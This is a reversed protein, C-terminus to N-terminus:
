IGAGSIVMRLTRLLLKIDTWLSWNATYLYDLAVMEEIPLRASGLVQWHGTMGPTLALRSRDLGTIKADEAEILPRPGVLSMDGRWVNFLQPLEDLCGRRILRGVRTLRPDSRIKFLGRAAENLHSMSPKLAEADAVMSRFKLIRFRKGNRGVRTQSFLVPGPSDLRIAIAIAVMLPALVVIGLTAGLLDFSRKLVRASRELGARRVGLIPVGDLEDFMVASGIVGLLRPILSVRLGIAKAVRILELLEAPDTELPAVIVRDVRRLAVLRRFEQVDVRPAISELEITAVVQAKVGSAELKGAVMVISEPSGVVLCRDADALRRAVARAAVRGAIVLVFASGWLLLIDAPGLPVDAAASDLWLVLTLLGTIQLLAPIDELTSKRLVLEDRDYLGAAKNAVVLGPVAAVLLPRFWDGVALSTIILALAVAAVDGCVLARRQLGERVLTQRRSQGEQIPVASGLAALGAAGPDAARARAASRRAGRVFRSGPAAAAPLQGYSADVHTEDVARM